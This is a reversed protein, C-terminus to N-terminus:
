GTFSSPIHPASTTSPTPVPASPAAPPPPLPVPAPAIGSLIDYADSGSGITGQWRKPDGGRTFSSSAQDGSGGPGLLMDNYSSSPPPAPHDGHFISNYKKELWGGLTGAGLKWW